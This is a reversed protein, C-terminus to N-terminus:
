PGVPVNSRLSDLKWTGGDLVLEARLREGDYVGGTPAAAAQAVSDPLVVVRGVRVRTAPKVDGQAQECGTAGGYSRALYRNTVLDGCADVPTTATLVVQLTRTIGATDSAPDEAPEDEPAETGPANQGDTMDTAGTVAPATTQLPTNDDGGCAGISVLLAATALACM